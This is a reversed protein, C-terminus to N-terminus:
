QAGAAGGLAFIVGIFCCVLLFYVLLIIGVASLWILFAKGTDFGTAERIGIVNSVIALINFVLGICPLVTLPAYVYAFGFIRGIETFSTQAGFFRNAAFACLGSFIAWGILSGIPTLIVSAAILILSFGGTFIAPDINLEALLAQIQPDQLQLGLQIPIFLGSILGALMTFGILVGVATGTANTDRVIERYIPAKFTATGLLRQFLGSNSQETPFDV